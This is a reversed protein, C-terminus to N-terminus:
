WPMLLEVRYFEANVFLFYENENEGHVLVMPKVM